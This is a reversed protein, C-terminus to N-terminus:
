KYSFIAVEPFDNRPSYSNLSEPQRRSTDIARTLSATAEAIVSVFLLRLELDALPLKEMEKAQEMEQALRCM